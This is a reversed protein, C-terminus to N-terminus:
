TAGEELWLAPLEAREQDNAASALAFQHFRGALEAQAHPLTVGSRLRGIIDAWYFHANIFM